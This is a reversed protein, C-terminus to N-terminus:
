TIWHVANEYEHFIELRMPLRMAASRWLELISSVTGPSAVLGVRKDVLHPPLFRGLEDVLGEFEDFAPLQVDDELIWIANRHPFDETRALEGLIAAVVSRDLRGSVTVENHTPLIEIRYGPL